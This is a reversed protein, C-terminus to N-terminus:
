SSRARRAFLLAPFVAAVAIMMTFPSFEPVNFHSLDTLVVFQGLLESLSLDTYTGSVRYTGSVDTGGANGGPGSTMTWQSPDPFPIIVTSSVTLLPNNYTFVNGLPDKVKLDTFVDPLSGFTHTIIINVNGDAPVGSPNVTLTSLAYTPAPRFIALVFLALLAGVLWARLQYL